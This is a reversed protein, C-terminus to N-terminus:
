SGSRSVQGPNNQIDQLGHGTIRNAKEVSMAGRIVTTFPFDGETRKSTCCILVLDVGHINASALYHLEKTGARESALPLSDLVDDRLEKWPIASETIQRIAEGAKESIKIYAKNKDLM